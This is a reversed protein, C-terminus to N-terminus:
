KALSRKSPALIKKLALANFAAFGAEDNDFYVYVDKGQRRWKRIMTAWHHLEEDNYSGQYKNGPGHLRIYIFDATIELPSTHYNLEYICFACNFRRLISYVEENYWSQERFEFAYRYGKPLARIFDELRIANVKWRPPLQFLIVGLKKRLRIFSGFMRDISNGDVILKKAHTLFRNAKVAFVFTPGTFKRWTDFTEPPPLRYFSNNLEVTDFHDQYYSFESVTKINPPYFTGRWHKYSWGSTGIHIKGQKV